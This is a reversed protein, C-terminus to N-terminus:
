AKKAGSIAAAGIAGIGAAAATAGSKVSDWTGHLTTKMKSSASTVKKAANAVANFGTPKLRKVESSTSKIKTNLKSISTATQNVKGEQTRYASSSKGSESAIKSLENEQIRQQKTLNEVASKYSNLKTKAAEYKKGEAELRDVYSKAVSSTSKYKTQLENLGSSYRAVDSRADKIKTTLKAMNAATENVRVQQKKYADSTIGSEEAIRKLENRQISQQKSLNSLSTRYNNLKAVSAEYGKGEAELRKVYSSNVENLSRYRSQLSALGSTQYQMASKAREQQATMSSLQKVAVGLQKAYRNYSNKGDETTLDLSKQREQILKIKEKVQDISRGLGEYKAQSAKLYDGVSKAQVEEAKWANTSARLATNMSRLSQTASVTDIKISTAM